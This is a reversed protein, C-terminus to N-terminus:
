ATEELKAAIKKASWRKDIEIGLREAEAILAAKDLAPEKDEDAPVPECAEDRVRFHNNHRLKTFMPTEVVDVEINLPFAVGGITVRGCTDSPDIPNGIFTIYM